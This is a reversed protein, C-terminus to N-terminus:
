PWLHERVSAPWSRPDTGHTKLLALTIRELGFGICGTHAPADGMRIGFTSGFLDQHYNVSVCATPKEASTIPITLEIKLEQERQNAALMRGTRGFFPDNAVSSRADLGVKALMDEARDLWRKRWKQVDDASGLRVFEWQRFAQMRAPDDSPEHRFCYACLEFERGGEPLEGRQTPYLPYCVAPCLVVDTMRQHSSYDKGDEIDKLLEVHEAQGGMFSHVTGALQPMNKMYGTREFAARSLIPPFRLRIAGDGAAVRRIFAEFREVIDEFVHGRGYLGPVGSDVLLGAAFLEDLFAKRAETESM